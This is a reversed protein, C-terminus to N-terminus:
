PSVEMRNKACTRPNAYIIVMRCPEVPFTRSM